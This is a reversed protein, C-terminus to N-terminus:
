FIKYNVGIKGTLGQLGVNYALGDTGRVNRSGFDIYNVEAKASWRQSFAFETGYGITWGLRDDRGRITTYAAGAGNFCPGTPGLNCTIAFREETWAGGAKAYVLVRDWVFGLRLAFTAVWDQSVQCTSNQYVGGLSGFLGLPACGRSGRLNSLAWDAEGGIVWRGFQHNYGLTLGGLVGAGNPRSTGGGGPLGIRNWNGEAGALLGVYGGTWNHSAVMPPAKYVGKHAAAVEPTFHYRIGGTVDWGDLRNGNRYDVRAFGVWGTGALQGALGLSYQGYTGITSGTYAGTIGAPFIGGIFACGACTTFTATAAREFEHWISAAAFPQWIWGGSVITTGVRVGARGVASPIDNIRLTGQIGGTGPGALPVGALDISDVTTRSLVIGASPEIFWTSQPVTFHYGASAAFSIGRASFKQNYINLSPSNLNVSYYDGRLLADAFFAGRSIAVYTGVFPAQVGSNFAGGLANGGVTTNNTELYGATSGFHINFGGWNLKAIDHGFQVGGFSQRIATNCAVPGTTNLGPLLPVTLTATTTSPDRVTVEGGVARVWVGSGQQNPRPNAPSSVFATSQLLFATSATAVSSAAAGAISGIPSVVFALNGVPSGTLGPGAACTEALAAPTAMALMAFAAGGIASIKRIAPAM